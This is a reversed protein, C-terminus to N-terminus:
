IVVRDGTCGGPKMNTSGDSTACSNHRRDVLSCEVDFEDDHRAAVPSLGSVRRM